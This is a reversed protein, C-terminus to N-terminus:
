YTEIACIMEEAQRCGPAPLFKKEQFASLQSLKSKLDSSLQVNLRVKKPQLKPQM